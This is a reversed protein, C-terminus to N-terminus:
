DNTTESIKSEKQNLPEEELKVEINEADYDREDGTVSFAMEEVGIEIQQDSNGDVRIVQSKQILSVVQSWELYEPSFPACTQVLYGALAQVEEQSLM